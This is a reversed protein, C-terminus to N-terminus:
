KTFQFHKWLENIREVTLKEKILLNKAIIEVFSWHTKIFRETEEELGKIHIEFSERLKFKLKGEYFLRSIQWLDNGSIDPDYIICKTWCYYQEAISGARLCMITYDNLDYNNYQSLDYSDHIVVNIQKDNEIINEEKIKIGTLLHILIHGAEHFATREKQFAIRKVSAKGM